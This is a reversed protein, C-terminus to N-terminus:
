CKIKNAVIRAVDQKAQISDAYVMDTVSTSSHGLNQSIVKIPINLDILMTAYSHRLDHFRIDPLGCSKIIRKFAHYLTQPSLINGDDKCCILGNDCYEDGLIRKQNNNYIQQRLILNEVDQSIYLQRNSCETKLDKIGYYSSDNQQYISRTISVQREINITHQIFDVDEFKLGLVEGRRLGLIAALKIPTEYPTNAVADFLTAIQEQTLLTPKYKEVRPTKAKECLNEEILKDDVAKNLAIKLVNHVYKITKGSLNKNEQLELYMNEIHSVKLDCIKIHGISPIIHNKINVLYGNATAPTLFKQHHDFWKFLFEGLRVNSTTVYQNLAIKATYEKLANEADKKTKYGGKWKQVKKGDSNTIYYIFTWTKGRLFPNGKKNYERRPM